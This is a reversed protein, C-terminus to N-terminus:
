GAAEGTRGGTRGGGLGGTRVGTRKPNILFSGICDCPWLEIRRLDRGKIAEGWAMSASTVLCKNTPACVNIEKFVGM